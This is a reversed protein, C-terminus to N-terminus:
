ASPWYQKPNLKLVSVHANLTCSLQHQWPSVTASAWLHRDRPRAHVDTIGGWCLWLWQGATACSSHDVLCYAPHQSYHQLIQKM